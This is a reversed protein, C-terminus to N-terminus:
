YIKIKHIKREIDQLWSGVTQSDSTRCSNYVHLQVHIICDSKSDVNNLMIQKLNLIM